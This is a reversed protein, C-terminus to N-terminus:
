EFHPSFIMEDLERSQLCVAFNAVRFPTVETQTTVSTVAVACHQWVRTGFSIRLQLTGLAGTVWCVIVSNKKLEKM